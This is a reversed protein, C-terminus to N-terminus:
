CHLQPNEPSIEGYHMEDGLSPGSNKPMTTHDNLYEENIPEETGSVSETIDQPLFQFNSPASSCSSESSLSALANRLHYIVMDKYQIMRDKEALKEEMMRIRQKLEHREKEKRKRSEAASSRNKLKRAAKRAEPGSGKAIRKLEESSLITAFKDTGEPEQDQSSSEFGSAQTKEGLDHRRRKNSIRFQGYWQNEGESIGAANAYMNSNVSSNSYGNLLSEVFLSHDGPTQESSEGVGTTPVSASEWGELVQEM